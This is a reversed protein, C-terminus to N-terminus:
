SNSSAAEYAAFKTPDSLVNTMAVAYAAAPDMGQEESLRTAEARVEEDINAPVNDANRPANNGSAGQETTPIRGAFYTYNAEEEGLKEVANLYRDREAASIRGDACAQDLMREQKWGRLADREERLGDRDKQATELSETLAELQATKEVLDQVAALIQAESAKESLSLPRSLLKILDMNNRTTKKTESAAVASMGPVFPENTLTGGILAWEGLPEGTKKSRAEARPVAEISFGDFEGNRIRAAAESTWRVRGWLSVTGDENARVDVELIRGAAKTSEADVAGGITAHNYGVPAGSSFWGERLISSYGRALSQIDEASLDVRRESARGFHTGSRVLESWRGEGDSLSVPCGWEAYGETPRADDDDTPDPAVLDEDREAAEEKQSDLIGRAKAQLSAKKEADLGPADSQPIRQIANRLHPLDVSGDANRYPFKRLSRPATKGGEDKEGGPAIYLFASDPLDNIFASTWEAMEEPEEDVEDDPAHGEDPFPLKKEEIAPLEQYDAEDRRAPEINTSMDKEELWARFRETTWKDADARVSQVEYSGDPKMGLIYSIGDTDAAKRM